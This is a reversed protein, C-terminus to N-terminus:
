FTENDDSGTESGELQALSQTGNVVNSLNNPKGLAILKNMTQIREDVSLGTQKDHKFEMTNFLNLAIAASVANSIFGKYELTRYSYTGKLSLEKEIRVAYESAVPHTFFTFEFSDGAKTILPIAEIDVFQGTENICIHDTMSSSFVIFLAPRKDTRKQILIPLQDNALTAYLM